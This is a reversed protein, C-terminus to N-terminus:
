RRARGDFQRVEGDGGSLIRQPNRSLDTVAEEIRSISRRSDQVLAEVNSLGQGSFRAINDTITGLRANLTDAVQKFSKLTDRADAMVGDAQGSGLLTDVRKLIGDVRVSADNLRSALQKADKITEDIDDARDAFKDTVKAIDAAAKNANESAKQINALAVRVQAPDIGDLVNDVKALTGQTRTAFDNVSGVATDVNKIVGDLQGSTEKLNATVADVNAVISKIKDKDVANLLGEAAKLTGDLKGSVGKLEDSLASVATLFKDIGDANRALADSFTQANKVTQTLPGRVDRTFGELDSLVKDARTFINQATQLLNTVASPNAIIEATRGEKAAEELLNPEKPDAGKLEINVQGALSAIGIDAQTSKTLPTTQDIETTAIAANPDNRDFYVRKVVGVKVGNFLVLSGPGLGSASGQIRVRLEATEGRDGIQATWYVFGFAALIAALTFIGVIVYNARTEM